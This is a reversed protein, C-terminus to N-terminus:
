ILVPSASDHVIKSNQIPPNNCLHDILVNGAHVAVVLNPNNPIVKMSYGILRAENSGM